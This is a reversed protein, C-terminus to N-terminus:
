IKPVGGIKGENYIPLIPRDNRLIDGPIEDLRYAFSSNNEKNTLYTRYKGLYNLVDSNHTSFLLQADTKNSSPNEFLDLLKPLIHPHLHMEFEDLILIGGSMLIALYIPLHSYLWKTGSSETYRTVPLLEGDVKHVFIPFAEKSGDENEKELINIDAVGVDCETIFSKVMTLLPKNANLIKSVENIDPLSEKMGGFGVNSVIQNFFKYLDSLENFQYQHSSSIISANDRLTIQKLQTLENIAFSIKNKKRELIKTKRDKTRYIVEKQVSKDTTILEYLYTTGNSIFKAYLECPKKSDYFPLISIEASPKAQFSNSAFEGLFALAKLVQTKGSANAGKIGIINAYKKGHSINAPCKNGLEFSISVGERFSFFNKFGFELLM